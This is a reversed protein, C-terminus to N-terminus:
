RGRCEFIGSLVFLTEPLGSLVPLSLEYPSKDKGAWQHSSLHSHSGALLACRLTSVKKSGWGIRAECIEKMSCSHSVTTPSPLVSSQMAIVSIYGVLGEAELFPTLRLFVVPVRCTARGM